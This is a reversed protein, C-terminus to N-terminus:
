FGNWARTDLGTPKVESSLLEPCKGERQPVFVYFNDKAWYPSLLIVTHTDSAENEM